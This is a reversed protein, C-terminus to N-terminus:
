ETHSISAHEKNETFSLKLWTKDIKLDQKGKLHEVINAFLTETSQRILIITNQDCTPDYPRM